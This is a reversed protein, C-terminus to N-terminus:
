ARLEALGAQCRTYVDHCQRAGVQRGIRAALDLLVTSASTLDISESNGFSASLYLEEGQM